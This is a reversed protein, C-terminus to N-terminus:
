AAKNQDNAEPTFQQPTNGAGIDYRKDASVVGAKGSEIAAKQQAELDIVRTSKENNGSVQDKPLYGPTVIPQEAKAGQGGTDPNKHKGFWRSFFGKHEKKPPTLSEASVAESPTSDPVNIVSETSPAAKVDAPPAVNDAAATPDIQNEGGVVYQPKEPPAPPESAAAPMSQQNSDPSVATAEAFGGGATKIQDAQGAEQVLPNVLQQEPSAVDLDPTPKLGPQPTLEPTM